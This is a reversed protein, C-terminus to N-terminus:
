VWCIEHSCTLLIFREEPVELCIVCEIARGKDRETGAARKKAAKAEGKVAEKEQEAAAAAKKAETVEAKAEEKVKVADLLMRFVGGKYPRKSPINAQNDNDDNVRKTTDKNTLDVIEPKNTAELAAIKIDKLKLRAQM